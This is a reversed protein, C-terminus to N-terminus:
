GAWLRGAHLLQRHDVDAREHRAHDDGGHGGLDIPRATVEAEEVDLAVADVLVELLPHSAAPRSTRRRTRDPCPRSRSPCATAPGPPTPERELALERRAPRVALLADVESFLQWGVVRPRCAAGREVPRVQERRLDGLEPGRHQREEVGHRRDPVPQQPAHRDPEAQFRAPEVLVERPVRQDQEADEAIWRFAADVSGFQPTASCM